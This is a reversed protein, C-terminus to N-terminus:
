GRSPNRCQHARRHQRDRGGRAVGGAGRNGDRCAAVQLRRDVGRLAAVHDRECRARSVDAVEHQAVLGTDDLRDDDSRGRGVLRQRAGADAHRRRVRREQGLDLRRIRCGCQADSGACVVPRQAKELELRVQVAVAVDDREARAARGLGSECLHRMREYQIPEIHVAVRLEALLAADREVAPVGRNDIGIDGVAFADTLVRLRDTAVVPWPGVQNLVVIELARALVEHDAAGIRRNRVQHGGVDDKSPIM